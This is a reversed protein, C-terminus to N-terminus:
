KGCCQKFKKGSACICPDNRGPLKARFQEGETYYWRGDQQVFSSRECIADLVRGEKYWASFHVMGDAGDMSSEHVQLSAWNTHPGNALLEATLGNLYDPHHTDILYQWLGLVFASYRSRMLAEPHSPLAGEHYPKCCTDYQGAGCPCAQIDM